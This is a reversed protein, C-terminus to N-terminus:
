AFQQDIYSCYIDVSGVASASSTTFHLKDGATMVFRDNWVFATAFSMHHYQLFYIDGAGGGDPDIYMNIQCDADDGREMIMISLITFIHDAGVTFLTLESDSELQQVKHVRRLVETGAGSGGTTIPNAM